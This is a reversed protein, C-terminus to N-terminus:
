QDAADTQADDERACWEGDHEAPQSDSVCVMRCSVGVSRVVAVDDAVPM